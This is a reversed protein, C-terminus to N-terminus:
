QIKEGDTAALKNTDAPSANVKTGDTLRSQGSTVVLDGTSIGQKVATMGSHVEGTTVSATAVTQDPKVVFVYPGGQGNQIASSPV